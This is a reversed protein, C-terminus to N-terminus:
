RAITWHGASWWGDMTGARRRPAAPRGRRALDLEAPVVEDQETCTLGLRRFM